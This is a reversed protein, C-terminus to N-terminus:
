IIAIDRERERERERERAGKQTRVNHGKGGATSLRREGHIFEVDHFVETHVHGAPEAQFVATRGSAGTTHFFAAGLKITLIAWSEADHDDEQLGFCVSSQANNVMV